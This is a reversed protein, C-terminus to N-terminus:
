ARGQAPGGRERAIEDRLERELDDLDPEIHRGAATTSTARSRGGLFMGVYAWAGGLMHVPLSLAFLSLARDAALDTTAFTFTTWGASSVVALVAAAIITSARHSVRVIRGAALGAVFFPGSRAVFSPLTLGAFMALAVLAGTVALWIGCLAVTLAIWDLRRRPTM